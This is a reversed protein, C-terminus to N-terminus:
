RTSATTSRDDHIAVEKITDLQDQVCTGATLRPLLVSFMSGGSPRTQVEIRGGMAMVLSQSISLGLGMGKHDGGTKTTFFPDFIHPLNEPSIGAGQDSVAIRIADPEVCLTLTITGGESSCDVANNLLNLLVQLLDGRPVCLREIRSDVDVVLVLRRQQLRKAFLAKIDNMMIPVEVAEGKGSEPRYLQYMNQVISSVRSIERDIMGAFEAHPHAPDVAQRVLTFANKIGAIPNNIEHAVGAALRGMAALKETQARHSELKAIEATREAVQRELEETYRVREAELHKRETIDRGAVLRVEKGRYHYPRVVVEGPFTTGDKRRGIAEYPGRVGDRMNAVVFDRSEDAVLDLISRGILEGQGYGFMRELGANVELLIGQDHIAIGDFTAETLLKYRLESDRLAAEAQRRDTIDRVIACDIEQRNHVLYNASVEVPYIEGSKGRHRTETRLKGARVFEEWHRDWVERPYDPDIDMVSMTLLDQKTYGLRRCAAENVDLFHGDPAILFIQDSAQDVAYQTTQLRAEIARRETIDRVIACNYEQGDYMLHNVTVETHRIKGSKTHQSSEFTFSGRRKLEEWHVPWADPPFNPDIDHVTMGLLEDRSYGLVDCAADNVYLIEAHPGVWFIGQAARDVTFQTLRLMRETRKREAVEMQLSANATELEATREIVRRELEDHAQRLAAEMKKRKTIDESIGLLYQPMGDVGCIPVKKTHLTRPGDVTQVTEETIDLLSGDALVQRDKMTFFDAESKPFLDYDTKGLLEHRARGLLEEGAKNFRVFRLERADKVFVMHPLHELVSTVFAESQRSQEEAQKRATIDICAGLYGAFTGDPFFRPVGSDHIWGYQGDARRLQYEMDFSEHRDFADWYTKRCRDRDEPHVGEVWGDGLEQEMTRGTYALWRSNLYTRRQDLGAMWMLAPASDAIVRFRKESERLAEEAQKRATIDESFIIIGGIGGEATFWPRIEWRSWDVRGDARVFPDEECSEVAGAVCRSHIARWREPIEPFVDYHSRGLLPEDGLRHDARWRRSVALYRMDRDLMALAVPSHDIFLRLYEEREALAAEMQKHVSIDECVILAVPGVEGRRLVRLRERVWIVTGEKTRKRFELSTVGDTTDTFARALEQRVFATDEEYVVDFVSGGILEEPVYCLQKAGYRNVSLITGEPSVTFYMSPNDEYLARLREESERMAAEAKKRETIDRVVAVLYEQDHRIIQAVVEVPFTTGDKRLHLSEIRLPLDVERLHQIHEQFVSKTVLPDIDPVTLASLENRTYGISEYSRRNGDLFRGSSPDIVEISDTVQDLLTRFLQLETETQKQQTIDRFSAVVGSPPGGEGEMMPQTNISIWVLSGDPRHVGMVVNESARGTRLTNMTPHTDGPFPSGDEHIAHWRPDLSTRGVMEEETLGLIRCASANCSLIRGNWDQIVIGEAMARVVSRHRQESERLAEEVQRRGTIDTNTGFWKIIRGAEDRIPLARALHWRYAGDSAQRLRFEIEYPQGIQLSTTWAAMCAPLDDPHVVSQWEWELLREAPADFYNLVRQNVYDLTGDPRATWVQQPIAEILALYRAESQRLDHEAQKRETINEVVAIVLPATGDPPKFLNATVRVWIIRGDKRIYRKDQASTFQHHHFLKDWLALNDPIDDPHTVMTFSRGLLEPTDYGLLESYARNVCVFRKDSDVIAMAVAAHEFLSRFRENSASVGSPFWSIWRCLGALSLCFAALAALRLITMSDTGFIALWFGLFGLFAVLGITSPGAINPSLLFHIPRPSINAETPTQCGDNIV